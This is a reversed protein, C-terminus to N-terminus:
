RLLIGTGAKETAAPKRWEKGESGGERRRGKKIRRTSKGVKYWKKGEQTM